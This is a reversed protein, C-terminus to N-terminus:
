KEWATLLMIGLKNCKHVLSEEELAHMKNRLARKTPTRESPYVAQNPLIMSQSFLAVWETKILWTFLLTPPLAPNLYRVDKAPILHTQQRRQRIREDNGGDARRGEGREAPTRRKEPTPWCGADGATHRRKPAICGSRSEARRCSRRGVPWLRPASGAPTYTRPPPSHYESLARHTHATM